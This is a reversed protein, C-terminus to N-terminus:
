QTRKGGVYMVIIYMIYNYVDSLSLIYFYLIPQYVFLVYFILLQSSELMKEVNKLSSALSMQCRPGHVGVLPIDEVNFEKSELGTRSKRLGPHFRRLRFPIDRSRFLVRVRQVLKPGSAWFDLSVKLGRFVWM